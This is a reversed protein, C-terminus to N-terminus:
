TKWIKKKRRVRWDLEEFQSTSLVLSVLASVLSGPKAWKRHELVSAELEEAYKEWDQWVQLLSNLERKKVRMYWVAWAFFLATCLWVILNPTLTLYDRLGISSRRSRELYVCISVILLQGVYLVCGFKVARLRARCRRLSLHLFAETDPAAGSWNDRDNIFRFIWTILLSAWVWIGLFKMAPQEPSMAWVTAASGMMVTVVVDAYLMTRMRRAERKVTERLGAPVHTEAQWQARWQDLEPDINM